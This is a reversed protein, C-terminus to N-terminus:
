YSEENGRSSACYADFWASVAPAGEALILESVGSTFLRRAQGSINSRMKKGLSHYYESLTKWIVSIENYPEVEIDRVGFKSSAAAHAAKHLAAGPKQGAFEGDANM